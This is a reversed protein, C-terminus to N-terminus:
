VNGKLKQVVSQVIIFRVCSATNPFDTEQVIIVEPIASADAKIQEKTFTLDVEHEVMLRFAEADSQTWQAVQYVLNGPVKYLTKSSDDRDHYPTITWGLLEALEKDLHECNEEYTM